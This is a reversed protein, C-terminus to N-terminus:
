WNREKKWLADWFAKAQATQLFVDFVMEVVLLGALAMMAPGRTRVTVVREVAIVVTVTTWLVSFRFEGFLLAWALVCLYSVLAVLGIVALAQRLWYERTVPTWGYTRINEIAGRKWRLRQRFLERWTPMVETLLTCEPPASIPHGLHRIALTLENDETLVETDYVAPGGPLLGHRRARLVEDLVEARFLTATGTLVLTRGGRRKLDRAYRAYENRQLAGVLGGGPKGGFTGGVAPVGRDLHRRAAEVFGPALVSDADMVLVADQPDLASLLEELTQNLAGAKKHRNRETTLVEVPHRAAVAVTGDTCNDAIVIIRDPPRSQALLSEIAAGIQHEENHAPVLAVVRGHLAPPGAPPGIPRAKDATLPPSM